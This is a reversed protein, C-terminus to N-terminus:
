CGDEKRAPRVYRGIGPTHTPATHRRTGTSWWTGLSRGGGGEGLWIRWAPVRPYPYPVLHIRDCPPLPLFQLSMGKPRPPPPPFETNKEKLQRWKKQAAWPPPASPPHSSPLTPHLQCHTQHRCRPRRDGDGCRQSRDGHDSGLRRGNRQRHHSHTWFRVTPINFYEQINVCSVWESPHGVLPGKHHHDVLDMPACM